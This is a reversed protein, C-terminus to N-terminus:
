REYVWHSKKNEGMPLPRADEKSYGSTDFREKINGAIDEHFDETKNHYVLLDTDMYCLTLDNGYKPVMNTM